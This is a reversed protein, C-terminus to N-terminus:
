LNYRSTKTRLWTYARLYIALTSLLGEKYQRRKPPPRFMRRFTEGGVDRDLTKLAGWQQGYLDRMFAEQHLASPYAKVAEVLPLPLGTKEAIEGAPLKLLPELDFVQRDSLPALMARVWATKEQRDFFSKGLVEAVLGKVTTPQKKAKAM